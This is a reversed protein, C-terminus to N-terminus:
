DVVLCGDQRLVPRPEFSSCPIQKSAGQAEGANAGDEPEKVAPKIEKETKVATLLYIRDASVIPSAYGQGPIETKWRVNKTASWEIPPTGDPAYGTGGPGRWQPWDSGQTPMALFLIALAMISLTTAIRNM